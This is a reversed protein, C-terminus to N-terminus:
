QRQGFVASGVRIMTAGEAIAWELDHSMGMSLETATPPILGEAIAQENLIRLHAYGERVSQEDDANLGITMFGRIKLLPMNQLSELFSFLDNPELGQKSAEHSVNIQIFTERIENQKECEAQLKEALSLRDLSQICQIYPFVAKVKNTQLHGIFHQQYPMVIKDAPHIHPFKDTVEQARNEGILGFGLDIAQQITDVSQTKTALLLDIERAPRNSQQAALEIRNLIKDLNDKINM